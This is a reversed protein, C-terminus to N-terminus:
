LTVRKSSRAAAREATFESQEGRRRTKVLPVIYKIVNDTNSLFRTHSTTVWALDKHLMLIRVIDFARAEFQRVLQMFVKLEEEILKLTGVWQFGFRRAYLALYMGLLPVAGVPESGTKYDEYAQTAYMIKKTPVPTGFFRQSMLLAKQPKHIRLRFIMM